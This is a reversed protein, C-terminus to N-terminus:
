RPGPVPVVVRAPAPTGIPQRVVDVEFPRAISNGALDELETDVRLAIPGGPWPAEPVFRWLTEGAGVEVRGAVAAGGVEATLARALMARDLPEPFRVVLPERTAPRPSEFTWNSPTPQVEDPPGARFAKRAGARLPRGEADPWGADIVLTYSTGAELIPGEEERPVLGRKIRGPDFLLTLRKGDADWLEEGIELFPREVARGDPRLLRVRRYAEGRAMPASFRLYIKLLNEPVVDATPDIAVVEAAPGEPGRPVLYVSELTQDAKNSSKLRHGHFQAVYQMGALLPYRPTLRVGGDIVAVRGVMPAAPPEGAPRSVRVSFVEPWRPDDPALRRAAELSDPDLGSVEVGLRGGREVWRLSPRDDAGAGAPEAPRPALTASVLLAATLPNV